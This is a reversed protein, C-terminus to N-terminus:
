NTMQNTSKETGTKSADKDNRVANSMKELAKSTENRLNNIQEASETKMKEIKSQFDQLRANLDKDNQSTSYAFISIFFAIISIILALTARFGGKVIKTPEAMTNNRRQQGPKRVFFEPGGSRTKLTPILL